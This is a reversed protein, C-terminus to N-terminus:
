GAQEAKKVEAQEPKADLGAEKRQQATIPAPADTLPDVGGGTKPFAIVERISDLGALLAVIRDWGFAIGGHPPAGYAFADLLFGFKEQAEQEGIGMVKFVREQVDRRHIRISGGGIENGNCVIDYAYALASGPDTDFTDLSEPKPSTFAHHVATWASHGLAVDGSATADDAPEFLPADVIWVFSWANEDILGVKRAIEGRAAGLLARQAKAPGAAFFVCDGPEAGVHKALGEREADSLNKAVPGGLSGDENVLVYALGKAGRQKAWEQWADLQRRPQSAGGPMVVAGVYPAQFVRFPTNKFYETCETIEVGFRLDPKDSGFRRMAEAYTMHPIPTPIEYGILKWLAVLIEEALLIVDAQEVFSMEIDLQTFEPQRDARFDEDRYCRAIQFYREIGGVMLLQKFLQPSQPLAYFNGPQLRAPVLFDRAGEPTSKTLTPTEVEVFEHRALVERAAANVKSRLRIAHAPGERRLDLYRHKLRAEEGPQEDLQFPLPASENLVELERVNVEIQGTPLEPNENGDPRQEVVGTVRVCYEARLRHAQEAAEGERFVAQSVGSADRLDIFIVGGHDRRRAVWGTLTVTQGAHESRLSGALHTRLM